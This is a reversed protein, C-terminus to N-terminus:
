LDKITKKVEEAIVPDIKSIEELLKLAEPKKGFKALYITKQALVKINRSDYDLALDCLSIAQKYNSLEAYAQAIFLITLPDEGYGHRMKIAKEIEGLGEEYKEAALYALGLNWHSTNIKENLTLAEKFIDVAEEKKGQLFNAWGLEYYVEQRKPSLERAKELIEESKILYNKDFSSATNYLQGLYLYYRVDLPHEEVSKKMESIAMEFGDRLVKSDTKGGSDAGTVSKMLQLRIEPNTFCSKELAKKYFSLGARLDVRSLSAAEHALKSQKLPKLNFKYIALPLFIIILFILVIPFSARKEERKEEEGQNTTIFYVLGLSFYFIILPAPTDFVFLNQVFYAVFMLGLIGIAIKNSLTTKLKKRIKKFLLWFLSLFVAFYSIIGLIGTLVLLDMVQNHSRDFWTHSLGGELYRPQYYKNFVVNFNEWGWGSIPKEKFGEMAIQWTTTRLWFAAKLNVIRQLWFIKLFSPARSVWLKGRPGYLSVSSFIIVILLFALIIKTKKSPFIFFLFIFFLPLSLIFTLFVGRSAGFLMIILNFVLLLLALIKWFWKKETFALFGALFIYLMSFVSLYIPNGLTSSLRAVSEGLLFQFGLKQGFAYLGVLFSSLLSVWIFKRWDRWNKFCSTLVLFWLYFHFMTLVGTMREQTSWFSRSIDVGTLMTLFLVGMFITLSLILPNKWQPRFKKKYVALFLWVVFIIEVLVQFSIIKPFIYPFLTRRYILFPLLLILYSGWRIIGFCFKEIKKSM